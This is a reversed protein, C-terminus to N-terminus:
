YGRLFASKVFPKIANLYENATEESLASYGGELCGGTDRFKQIFYKEAGRIWEGIAYFDSIEHQENTATTRFEYGIKGELLLKVSKRIPAMDLRPRCVSSPYKEPSNKIDMAVYDILKEEILYNLMDPNTGNSDLKVSYGLSKVQAIFAPLEPHLTPEGGTIALGDLLGKRKNLYELITEEPICVANKDM